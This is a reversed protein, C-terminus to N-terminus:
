GRSLARKAMHSVQSPGSNGSPVAPPAPMAQEDPQAPAAEQDTGMDGSMDDGMDGAMDPNQGEGDAPMEDDGESPSEVPTSPTGALPAAQLTIRTEDSSKILGAIDQDQFLQSLQTYNLKLGSSSLIKLLTNTKISPELNKQEAKSSMLTLLAIIDNKISNNAM